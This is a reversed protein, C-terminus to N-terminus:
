PGLGIFAAAKWGAEYITAQLFAFLRTLGSHGRIAKLRLLLLMGLDGFARTLTFLQSEAM